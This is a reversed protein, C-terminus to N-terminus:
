WRDKLHWAKGPGGGACAPPQQNDFCIKEVLHPNGLIIPKGLLGM